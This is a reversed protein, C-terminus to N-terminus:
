AVQSKHNKTVGLTKNIFSDTQKFMDDLESNILM